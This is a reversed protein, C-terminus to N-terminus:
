GRHAGAGRCRLVSEGGGPGAVCGWLRPHCVTVLSFLLRGAKVTDDDCQRVAFCRDSTGRRKHVFRRTAWSFLYVGSRRLSVVLYTYAYGPLPSAHGTKEGGIGRVGNYHWMESCAVLVLPHFRDPTCFFGIRIRLNHRRRSAHTRNRAPNRNRSCWFGADLIWYGAGLM